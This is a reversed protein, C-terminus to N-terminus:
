ILYIVLEPLFELDAQNIFVVTKILGMNFFLVGFIQIFIMFIITKKLLFTLLYNFTLTFTLYKGIGELLM